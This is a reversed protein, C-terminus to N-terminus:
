NKGQMKICFAQLVQGFLFGYCKRLSYHANFINEDQLTEAGFICMAFQESFIKVAQGALM